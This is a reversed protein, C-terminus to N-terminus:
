EWERQRFKSDAGFVYTKATLKHDAVARGIDSLTVIGELVDGNMVLMRHIRSNRMEDAAREVPTDGPMSSIVRTMVESVTHEAFRDWEPGTVASFREDVEAGADSWFESFFTGPPEDEEEYENPTESEEWEVQEPRETPVSPTSAAFSLLDTASIVGVVKGGTVVPAGSVQRNMLLDIADRLLMEPEVTVLETTMIDRLRLM